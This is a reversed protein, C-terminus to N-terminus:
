HQRHAGGGSARRGILQRAFDAMLLSPAALNVDYHRRYRGFDADILGDPLECAAANSVLGDLPGIAGEAESVLATIEDEVAFDAAVVAAKGGVQRIHEAVEAAADEGLVTHM